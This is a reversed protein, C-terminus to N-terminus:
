LIFTKRAYVLADGDAAYPVVAAADVGGYASAQAVAFLHSDSASRRPFRRRPVLDDGTVGAISMHSAAELGSPGVLYPDMHCIDTMRQGAVGNVSVARPLGPEVSLAKM